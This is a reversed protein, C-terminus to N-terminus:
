LAVIRILVRVIESDKEFLTGILRLTFAQRSGSSFTWGYRWDCAFSVFFDILPDFVDVNDSLM